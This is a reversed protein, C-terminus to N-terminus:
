WSQLAVEQVCRITFLGLIIGYFDRTISLGLPLSVPSFISPHCMPNFFCFSFSKELPAWEQQSMWRLPVHNQESNVVVSCEQWVGSDLLFDTHAGWFGSSRTEAPKMQEEAFYFIHRDFCLVFLDNM